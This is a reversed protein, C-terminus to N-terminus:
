KFINLGILILFFSNILSLGTLILKSKDIKNKEIRTNVKNVIILETLEKNMDDIKQEIRAIRDDTDNM